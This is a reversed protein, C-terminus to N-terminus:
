YYVVFVLKLIPEDLLLLLAHKSLVHVVGYQIGNLFDIIFM